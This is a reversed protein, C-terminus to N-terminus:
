LLETLKSLGNITTETSKAINVQYKMRNEIVNQLKYFHQGVRGAFVVTDINQNTFEELVNIYEDVIANILISKLDELKYGSKLLNLVQNKLSEVDNMELSISEKFNGKHTLLDLISISKGLYANIVDVVESVVRGATLHTKTELYSDFFYPRLQFKTPVIRNLRCSIQGGTGINIVIRSESLGAGLLSAQQDGVAVFVPCNFDKSYGTARISKTVKPFEVSSFLAEFNFLDISKTKLNFLGSSAFDTEQSFFHYESSLQSATWTLLTHFRNISLEENIRRAAYSILPLGHRLERGTSEFWDQDLTGQVISFFSEHKNTLNKSYQDQWSILNTLPNNRLDTVVWGGMQGSILIGQCKEGRNAERHVDLISWIQMLYIKPDIEKRHQKMQSFEPTPSRFVSTIERGSGRYIATKIDTGGIDLLLFYSM